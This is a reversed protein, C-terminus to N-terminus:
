DIGITNGVGAIVANDYAATEVQIITGIRNYAADAAERLEATLRSIAEKSSMKVAVADLAVNSKAAAEEIRCRETVSGASTALYIANLTVDLSPGVM